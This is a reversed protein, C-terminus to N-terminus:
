GDPAYRNLVVTVLVFVVGSVLGLILGATLRVLVPGDIVAAMVLTMLVVLVSLNRLDRREIGLRNAM